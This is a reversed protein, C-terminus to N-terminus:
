FSEYNWRISQEVIEQVINRNAKTLMKKVLWIQVSIGIIMTYGAAYLIWNLLQKKEMHIECSM